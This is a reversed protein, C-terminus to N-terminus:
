VEDCTAGVGPMALNITLSILRCLICPDSVHFSCTTPNCKHNHASGLRSSVIVATYGLRILLQAFILVIMSIGTGILALLPMALAPKSLM